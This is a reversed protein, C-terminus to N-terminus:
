VLFPVLWSLLFILASGIKLSFLIGIIGSTGSRKNFSNPSIYWLVLIPDHIVKLSKQKNFKKTTTKNNNEKVKFPINSSNFALSIGKIENSEILQSIM